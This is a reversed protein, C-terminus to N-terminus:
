YNSFINVNAVQLFITFFLNLNKLFNDKFTARLKAPTITRTANEQEQRLQVHIRKFLLNVVVQLETIETQIRGEESM